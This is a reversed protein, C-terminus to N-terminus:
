DLAGARFRAILDAYAPLGREYGVAWFGAGALGREDALALKPALTAPSDVYIAGWGTAPSGDVPDPTAEEIVPRSANGEARVVARDRRPRSDRRQRERRLDDERGDLM